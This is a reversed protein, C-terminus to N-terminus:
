QYSERPKLFAEVEAILVEDDMPLVHKTIASVAKKFFEEFDDQSMSAFSISGVRWNTKGGLTLVPERIGCQLKLMYHLEDISRVRDELHEPLNQYVLKLLCWYKQHFKVNRPRKIEVSYIEGLKLKSLHEKDSDNAPILGALTKVLFIKSM